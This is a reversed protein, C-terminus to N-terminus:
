RGLAEFMAKASKHRTLNKGKDTDEFTKLTVDNPVRIEFPIARNLKVQRLFIEIAESFSFGLSMLVQEADYKLQPEIRARVTATKM